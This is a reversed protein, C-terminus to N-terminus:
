RKCHVRNVQCRCFILSEADECGCQNPTGYRKRGKVADICVKNGNNGCTGTFTQNIICLQAKQVEIDQAHSLVIFMFCLLIFTDCKM